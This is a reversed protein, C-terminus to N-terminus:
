AARGRFILGWDTLSPAMRRPHLIAVHGHMREAVGSSAAECAARFPPNRRLFEWAWDRRSLSLAYDYTKANCADAIVCYTRPM